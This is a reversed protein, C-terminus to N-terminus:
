FYGSSSGEKIMSSRDTFLRTLGVASKEGMQSAGVFHSGLRDSNRLFLGFFKVNSETKNLTDPLNELPESDTEVIRV